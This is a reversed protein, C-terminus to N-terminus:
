NSTGDQVTGGQVSGAAGIARNFYVPCAMFLPKTGTVRVSVDVDGQGALPGGPGLLFQNVDDTFRKSAELTVKHDFPGKNTIYTITVDQGDKSFLTVYMQLVGADDNRVSGEACFTRTRNGVRSSLRGIRDLVESATQNAGAFGNRMHFDGPSIVQQANGPDQYLVSLVIRDSSSTVIVALNAPSGPSYVVPTIQCPLAQIPLGGNLEQTASNAFQVRATIEPIGQTPNYIHLTVNTANTSFQGSTYTFIYPVFEAGSTLTLGGVTGAVLIALGVVLRVARM